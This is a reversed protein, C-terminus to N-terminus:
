YPNVCIDIIDLWRDEGVAARKGESYHDTCKQVAIKYAEDKSSASVKVDYTGDSNTVGTNSKFAKGNFHFSFEKSSSAPSRVEVTEATGNTFNLALLALITVSGLSLITKIM